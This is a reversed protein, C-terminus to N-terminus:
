LNREEKSLTEKENLLRNCLEMDGMGEARQLETQLIRKKDKYWRKKIHRITDKIYRDILTHDKITENIMSEFFKEKMGEHGIRDMLRSSDLTEGNKVAEEIEQAIKKLDDNLFYDLVYTDVMVNIKAPWELMACILAFEVADTQRLPKAAIAPTASKKAKTLTLRIQEKLLDQEIGLKEAVRKIFLNREITDDIGAIFPVADRLADYSDELTAGTRRGIVQEIYYDVMSQANDIIQEFKEPGFTRIYDDPDYGEPLVAARAHVGGALFLPLSRALAKKGAEDPDFLAVVQMTYRKILAVQNVTLATGLSAVCHKIGANWLAVLDFYGEVLIAYGKKRIDERTRNLGYLNRGKIYLPTEPSNLYKPEGEGLVRGGFAIVRGNIDEIPFMLRGRFRDYFRGEKGPIILGAKELIEPSIKRKEFYERLHSWGDAAVGIRFERVAAERIGRGKLYDRAAQGATSFLRKAFLVAVDDNIRSIQERIGLEEKDHATMEKQPFVVGTKGALYRVAEPFAMDNIKMLFSIVNGGEGCGFCYFIQKDPNVTFSPTKEKHFPCLGLFNRGAKKLTVFESVLDVIDARNRIEDIKDEPIYGKL